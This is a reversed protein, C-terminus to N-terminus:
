DYANTPISHRTATQFLTKPAGIQVTDNATQVDVRDIEPTM